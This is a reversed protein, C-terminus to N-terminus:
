PAANYDSPEEAVLRLLLDRNKGYHYAIQADDYRHERGLPCADRCALWAHWDGGGPALLSARAREFAPLCGAGCANCPPELPVARETPGPVDFSIAARLAIWPGYVPHVSLHGPSLLALGAVEALRQIAVLGPGVDHAWRLEARLGLASVAGGIIQETYRDLPDASALLSADNRLASVFPQWLARTNGIVLALTQPAGFDSLRLAGEVTENYDAVRCAAALDFGAPACRERLRALISRWDPADEVV